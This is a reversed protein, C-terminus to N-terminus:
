KIEVKIGMKQNKFDVLIENEFFVISGLLGVITDQKFLNRHYDSDIYYVMQHGFDKKGIIFSEKIAAGAIYDFHTGWSTFEKLTDTGKTIDTIENYFTSDSVFLPTISSGTDFNVKQEKGNILVTLIAKNNVIEFDFFEFQKTYDKQVSDVIAIKNNPFDIILCRNKLEEAGITGIVGEADYDTRVLWNKVASPTNGIKINPNRVWYYSEGTGISDVNFDNFISTYDELTTEYLMNTNAGLDFQSLYTISDNITIPIKIGLKDYYKGGLSDKEWTIPIWEINESQNGITDESTRGCSVIVMMLLFYAILKKMNISITM